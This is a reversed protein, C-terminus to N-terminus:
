CSQKSTVVSNQVTIKNNPPLGTDTNAVYYTGDAVKNVANEDWFVWNGVGATMVPFLPAYVPAVYIKRDYAGCNGNIGTSDFGILPEPCTTFVFVQDQQAGAYTAAPVDCPIELEFDIFSPSANPKPIVM